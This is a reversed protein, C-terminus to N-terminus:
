DCVSKAQVGAVQNGIPPVLGLNGEIGQFVGRVVPALQCLGVGSGRRASYSDHDAARFRESVVLSVLAHLEIEEDGVDVILAGLARPFCAVNVFEFAVDRAQLGALTLPEFLEVM